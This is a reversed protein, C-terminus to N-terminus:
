RDDDQDARLAAACCCLVRCVPSAGTGWRSGRYFSPLLAALTLISNWMTFREEGIVNLLPTLSITNSRFLTHFALLELPLVAGIWNQGLALRVFDDAVLIM